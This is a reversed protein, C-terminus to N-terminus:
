WLHLLCRALRFDPLHLWYTATGFIGWLQGGIRVPDDSSLARPTSGLSGVNGDHSPFDCGPNLCM